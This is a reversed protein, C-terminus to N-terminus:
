TLSREKERSFLFDRAWHQSAHQQRQQNRNSQTALQRHNTEFVERQKTNHINNQNYSYGVLRHCAFAVLMRTGFDGRIQSDEGVADDGLLRAAVFTDGILLEDTVLNDVGLLHGHANLASLQGGFGRSHQNAGSFLHTGNQYRASILRIKYQHDQQQQQTYWCTAIPSVTSSVL